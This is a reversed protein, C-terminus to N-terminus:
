SATRPTMTTFVPAIYLASPVSTRSLPPLEEVAASLECLMSVVTLFHGEVGKVDAAVVEEFKTVEARRQVEVRVVVAGGRGHDDPASSLRCARCRYIFFFLVHNWLALRVAYGDAKLVVLCLFIQFM